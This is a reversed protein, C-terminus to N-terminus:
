PHNLIYKPNRVSVIPQVQVSWGLNGLDNNDTHRSNDLLVSKEFLEGEGDVKRSNM